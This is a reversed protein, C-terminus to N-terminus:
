SHTGTFIRAGEPMLADHFSREPLADPLMGPLLWECHRGINSNIRTLSGSGLTSGQGIQTSRGLHVGAHLTVCAGLRVEREVIVQRELWCGPGVRTGSALNCGPGIHVNGMLRVDADLHASASVLNITRYGALRVDALLKHRAHNVAREDLAVFVETDAAAHHTLLAGLDFNYHDISTLALSAYVLGCDQATRQAQELAAGEGLM